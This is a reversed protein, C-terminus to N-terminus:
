LVYVLSFQSQQAKKRNFVMIVTNAIDKQSTMAAFALFVSVKCPFYFCCWGFFYCKVDCMEIYVNYKTHNLTRYKKQTLM